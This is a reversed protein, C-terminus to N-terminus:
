VDAVATAYIQKLEFRKRQLNKLRSLAESAHMRNVLENM